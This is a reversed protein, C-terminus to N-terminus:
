YIDKRRNRDYSVEKVPQVFRSQEPQWQMDISINSKGYRNKAIIVESIQNFKLNAKKQEETLDDGSYPSDEFQARRYLLLAVDIDYEVNGSDRFDSLRPKKDNRDVFSRNISAVSVVPINFKTAIIKLDRSIQTVQEYRSRKSDLPKIKQLYDIFVVDVNELNKIENEIDVVTSGENGMRYLRYEAIKSSANFIRQLLNTDSVGSRIIKTSIGTLESVLKTQVEVYPM